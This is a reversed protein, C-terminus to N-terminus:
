IKGRRNHGYYDFSIFNLLSIYGVLLFIITLALESNTSPAKNIIGSLYNWAGYFLGMPLLLFAVLFSISAFNFDRLFYNYFIRKFFNKMYKSFFPIISKAPSLNSEEDGYVATMPVDKVYGSALSIRFLMDSEFFYRNDIKELPLKKLLEYSIATYGNTPDFIHWYGTAFKCLFSLGANGILRIKPMDLVDEINYFRNGKSYDATQQLIPEAIHHLLKPDMQGDSDIKVIVDVNGDEIVKEYGAKVAGGVGLNIKNFLVHVRSDQINELVYKGTDEPCCDDVVIISTIDKPIDHIVEIIHKKSKYAPMVVAIKM